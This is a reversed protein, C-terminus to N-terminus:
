EADAGGGAGVAVAVGAQRFLQEALSVDIKAIDEYTVVGAQIDRVAQARVDEHVLHESWEGPHRRKLYELAARWDGQRAVTAVTKTVRKYEYEKGDKTLRTETFTEVRVTKEFFPKMALHITEIATVKANSRARNVAESFEVYAADGEAGRALWLYFTSPAIGVHQCADEVIVGQSILTVVTEQLADKLKTKRGTKAM